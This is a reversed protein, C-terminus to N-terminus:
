KVNKKIAEIIIPIMLDPSGIVDIDRVLKIKRYHALLPESQSRYVKMRDRITKENDDARQVLQGGCKDCKGSTKPLLPPMKIKGRNITAINYTTGCKSCVRRGLTKEIIIEEDLVFNVVLDIKTIKELSEGQNMTRPYGDLIFGKRCDPRSIREKLIKNTTEDDILIGNKLKNEIKKGLESGAAVEARFLDGTSIHPIGLKEAARSSYTGKGSGPPGFFILHM